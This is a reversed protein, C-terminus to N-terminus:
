KIGFAKCIRCEPFERKIPRCFVSQFKILRVFEKHTMQKIGSETLRDALLQLKDYCNKAYDSEEDDLKACRSCFNGFYWNALHKLNVQKKIEAM